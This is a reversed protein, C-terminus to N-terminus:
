VQRLCTKIFSEVFSLDKKNLGIHGRSNKLDPSTVGLIIDSIPTEYLDEKDWAFTNHGKIKMYSLLVHDKSIGPRSEKVEAMFWEGEYVACVMDGCKWKSRLSVASSQSSSPAPTELDIFSLISKKGKVARKKRGAFTVPTFLTKKMNNNGASHLQEVFPVKLSPDPLEDDDTTDNQVEDSVSEDSDGEENSSQDSESSEVPQNTYSQGAPVKKGRPKKVGGFRKVEFSKLIQQDIHRAITETSAVSPIREKPKEANLPYLGCKEFAKPLHDRFNVNSCLEKLMRPFETKALLKASPDQEKYKSLQKKWEQKM